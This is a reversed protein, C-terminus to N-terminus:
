KLRIIASPSTSPMRFLSILESLGVSDPSPMLGALHAILGLLQSPTYMNRLSEMSLSRDRKSLRMGESNCVLPLHAFSPSKFGLLGAIYIQQASSLLLDNGRMVETIEMMADDAVVALQYAWAGDSRRVIFDGCERALNM